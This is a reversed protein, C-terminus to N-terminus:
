DKMVMIQMLEIKLGSRDLSLTKKYGHIIKQSMWALNYKKEEEEEKQISSEVEAHRVNRCKKIGGNEKESCRQKIWGGHWASKSQMTGFQYARYDSGYRGGDYKVRPGAAGLTAPAVHLVHVEYKVRHPNRILPTNPNVPYKVTM